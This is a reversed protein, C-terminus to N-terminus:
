RFANSTTCTTRNQRIQLVTQEAVSNRSGYIIAKFSDRFEKGTLLYLLFKLSQFAANGYTVFINQHAKTISLGFFNMLIYIISSSTLLVCSIFSVVLIPQISNLEKINADKMIIKATIFATASAIFGGVQCIINYYQHFLAFDPTVSGSVGCYRDSKVIEDDLFSTIFMVILAILPLTVCLLSVYTRYGQSIYVRYKIPFYVAGLKELSMILMTTAVLEPGFVRFLMNMKLACGWLSIREYYVGSSMEMLRTISPYILYGGDLMDGVCILSFYLYKDRMVKRSNLFLFLILNCIVMFLGVYIRVHESEVTESDPVVMYKSSFCFPLSDMLLNLSDCYEEARCDNRSPEWGLQCEYDSTM